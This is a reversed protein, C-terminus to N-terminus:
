RSIPLVLQMRELLPFRDGRYLLGLAAAEGYKNFREECAECLLHSWMQRPTATIIKPTFVVPHNSPTECSLRHLAKGLYHSKCLRATLGCLRCVGQVNSRAM